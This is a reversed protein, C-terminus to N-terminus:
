VVFNYSSIMFWKKIEPHFFLFFGKVFRPFYVDFVCLVCMLMVCMCV